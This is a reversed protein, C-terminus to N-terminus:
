CFGDNRGIMAPSKASRARSQGNLHRTYIDRKLAIVGKLASQDRHVSLAAFFRKTGECLVRTVATVDYARRPVHGPQFFSWRRFIQSWYSSVLFASLVTAAIQDQTHSPTIIHRLSSAPVVSGRTRDSGQRPLVAGLAIRIEPRPCLILAAM